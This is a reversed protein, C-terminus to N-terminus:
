FSTSKLQDTSVHFRLLCLSLHQCARECCVRAVVLALFLYLLDRSTCVLRESDDKLMELGVGIWWAARCRQMSILRVGCTLLGPEHHLRDVASCAIVGGMTRMAVRRVHSRAICHKSRPRHLHLSHQCTSNYSAHQSSPGCLLTGLFAPMLWAEPVDGAWVADAVVCALVQVLRCQSNSCRVHHLRRVVPVDCQRLRTRSRGLLSIHAQTFARSPAWLAHSTGLPAGQAAHGNVCCDSIRAKAVLLGLVEVAGIAADVHLSRTRTRCLTSWQLRAAPHAQGPDAGLQAEVLRAQMSSTLTM